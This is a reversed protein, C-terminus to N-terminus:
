ATRMKWTNCDLQESHIQCKEWPVTLAWGGELCPPVFGAEFYAAVMAAHATGDARGLRLPRGLRDSLISEACM